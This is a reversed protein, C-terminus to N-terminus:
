FRTPRKKKPEPLSVRKTTASGSSGVAAVPPSDVLSFAPPIPRPAASFAVPEFGLGPGPLPDLSVHSWGAMLEVVESSFALHGPDLRRAPQDVVWVPRDTHLRHAIAEALVEPMASNRASKVGLRIILLGPPEVLDVLTAKESSVSAADPDLIEKGVLSAPSLWAVMLDADSVVKFSWMSGQRLAVNRLHARLTEDTATISLNEGARGNLPSPEALRGGKSLGRWAGDMNRILDSVMLCKCPRTKPVGLHTEEM